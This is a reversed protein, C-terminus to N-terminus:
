GQHHEHRLRRRQSVARGERLRRAKPKASAIHKVVHEADRAAGRRAAVGHCVPLVPRPLLPRAGLECGRDHLPAGEKDFVPLDIWGFDPEFGTCWVVNAVDLVRGDDLVPLGDQVGATRPVREIGAAALDKRRVRDLPLGRSRFPRPGEPGDADERDTPAHPPVLAPSLVASGSPEPAVAGPGHRTRVAACPARQVSRDRDRSGLERRRRRARRGRAAAVSEPIRQLAAARHGSGARARLRSGPARTPAPRSSSTTPRSGSTAPCWSSPGTRGRSGTWASAPESQSSSAARRLGRLLRGRRGEHPVVLVARPVRWGPLCDYRAPTFLRLSDWRNRWSDGVREGADLIM